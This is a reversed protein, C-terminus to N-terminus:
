VAVATPEGCRVSISKEYLRVTDTAIRDWTDRALTRDCAMAQLAVVGSSEYSPTCAVVDASLPLAPMDAGIAARHLRLRDAVGLQEALERLRRAERDSQLDDNDTEGIVVFEADSIIPLARIAIDFGTHPLLKGM